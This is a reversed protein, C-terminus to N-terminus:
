PTARRRPTHERLGRAGAPPERGRARAARPAPRTAACSAIPVDWPGGVRCVRAPAGCITRPGFCTREFGESRAAASRVSPTKTGLAKTPPIEGAGPRERRRVHLDAGRPRVPERPVQRDHRVRGHLVPRGGERELVRIAAHEAVVHEHQRFPRATQLLDVGALQVVDASAPEDVEAHRALRELRTTGGASPPSSAQARRAAASSRSAGPDVVAALLEYDEGFALDGATAGPALPIADVDLVVRCGSRSALHAADAGIGDSVDLMAHAHAALERGEALRLPPRVYRGERFAAGAAGLPGTVVLLDGPRAGSRGPVRASAGLATVGLVLQPARTTDGGVVPVGTEAIGTCSSWTQSLRTRRRPSRSSSGM